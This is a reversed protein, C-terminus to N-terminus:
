EDRSFKIEVVEDGNRLRVREANISEVKWGGVTDGAGVWTPEAANAPQLAARAGREGIIIGKLAFAGPDEGTDNGSPQTPDNGDSTIPPAVDGGPARDRSFMPRTFAATGQEPTAGTEPMAPIEVIASPGGSPTLPDTTRFIIAAGLLAVIAVGLTLNIAIRSAPQGFM